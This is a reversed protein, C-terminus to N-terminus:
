IDKLRKNAPSNAVLEDLQMLNERLKEYAETSASPIDERGNKEVADLVYKITLLNPDLAPQYVTTEGDSLNVESIVEAELLTYIVDRILSSPTEMELAIHQVTLDRRGESFHKVIMHAVRLALMRKFSYSATRRDIEFEYIDANQHAYSLESGLLMIVWSIHLWFIFLPLAAFSGYVANYRSIAIQSNIYFGQFFQYMTGAIVGALAGSSFRIKANPMFIYLYSFLLWLVLYPSLALLAYIAPSFAELLEIRKVFVQIESTIFVTATSSFMLFLPLIVMLALYDVIRRSVKRPRKINWIDNFANEIQSLVRFIAYLLLALGVAAMLGGRVNELLRHAFGLAQTVVEGQAAFHGYLWNELAKEVGFGQAVGFVLALAPVVALMSYYTLASAWLSWKGEALGRGTVILIRLCRFYLRRFGTLDKIRVQWIETQLFKIIRTLSM